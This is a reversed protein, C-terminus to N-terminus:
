LVAWGKARWLQVKRPSVTVTPVAPLMGPPSSPIHSLAGSRTPPLLLTQGRGWALVGIRVCFRPFRPGPCRREAWCPSHCLSVPGPSLPALSGAKFLGQAELELSFGQLMIKNESAFLFPCFEKDNMMGGASLM